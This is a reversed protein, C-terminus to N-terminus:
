TGRTRRSCGRIPDAVVSRPHVKRVIREADEDRDGLGDRLLRKLGKPWFGGSRGGAASERNMAEEFVGFDRHPGAGVRSAVAHVTDGLAVEKTTACM